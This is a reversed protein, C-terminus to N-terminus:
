NCTPLYGEQSWDQEGFRTDSTMNTGIAPIMESLPHIRTDSRTVCTNRLANRSGGGGGGGGGGRRCWSGLATAATGAPSSTTVACSGNAATGSGLQAGVVSLAVIICGFM